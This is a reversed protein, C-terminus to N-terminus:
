RVGALGLTDVQRELLVALLRDAPDASGVLHGGLELTVIGVLAALEAFPAVRAEKAM